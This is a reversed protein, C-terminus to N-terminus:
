KCEPSCTEVCGPEDKRFCIFDVSCAKLLLSFYLARFFKRILSEHNRFSQSVFSDMLM